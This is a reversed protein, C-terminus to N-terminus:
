LKLDGKDVSLVEVVPMDVNSAMEMLQNGKVEILLNVSFLWVGQIILNIVGVLFIVLASDNYWQFYNSGAIFLYYFLDCAIFFLAAYSAVKRSNHLLGIRTYLAIGAGLGLVLLGVFFRVFVVEDVYNKSSSAFLMYVFPLIFHFIIFCGYVVKDFASVGDNREIASLKLIKYFSVYVLWVLLGTLVMTLFLTIVFFAHFVIAEEEPSDGFNWGSELIIIMFLAIGRAMLALFLSLGIMLPSFAKPISSSRM